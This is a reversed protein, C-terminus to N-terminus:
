ELDKENKGLALSIHKKSHEKPFIIDKELYYRIPHNVRSRKSPICKEWETKIPMGSFEVRKQSLYSAPRSFFKRFM